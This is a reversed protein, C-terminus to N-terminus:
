EETAAVAPPPLLTRGDSHSTWPRVDALGGLHEFLDVITWRKVKPDTHRGWSAALARYHAPHGVQTSPM